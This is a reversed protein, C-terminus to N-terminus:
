ALGRLINEIKKYQDTSINLTKTQAGNCDNFLKLKFIYPSREPTIPCLHFLESDIYKKKLIEETQSDM